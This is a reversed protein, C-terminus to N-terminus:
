KLYYRVGVNFTIGSLEDEGKNLTASEKREATSTLYGLAGNLTFNDSVPLRLDAVINGESYDADQKFTLTKSEGSASIGNYNLGISPFRDPNGAFEGSWASSGALILIGVAAIINRKMIVEEDPASTQSSFGTVPLNVSERFYFLGARFPGTERSRTL